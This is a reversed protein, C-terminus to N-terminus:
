NPITLASAITEFKWERVGAGQNQGNATSHWRLLWRGVDALGIPITVQYVGLNMRVITSDTGYTLVYAASVPPQVGITIAGPDVYTASTGSPYGPPPTRPISVSFTATATDGVVYVSIPQPIQPSPYSM